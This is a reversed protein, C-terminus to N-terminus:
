PIDECPSYILIPTSYKEHFQFNLATWYDINIDNKTNEIPFIKSIITNMEHIDLIYNYYQSYALGWYEYIKTKLALNDTIDAFWKSLKLTELLKTYNSNM